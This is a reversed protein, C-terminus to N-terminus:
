LKEFEMIRIPSHSEWELCYTNEKWGLSKMHRQFAEGSQRGPEALIFKGGNELHSCVCQELAVFHETDYVLDAGLVYDFRKSLGREAWRLTQYDCRDRLSWTNLRTLQVAHNVADTFTVRAGRSAASFGAIGSGCGLELVNCDRLAYRALQNDLASASPWRAAWYPSNSVRDPLAASADLVKDPEHVQLWRRNVGAICIITESLEFDKEFSARLQLWELDKSFQSVPDSM